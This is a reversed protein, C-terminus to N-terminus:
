FLSDLEPNHWLRVRVLNAGADSFITYPDQVLNQSNRYVAGCDIMENVYSLDAGYYFDTKADPTEPNGSEPPGIPDLGLQPLDKSDCSLLIQCVLFLLNIMRIKIM